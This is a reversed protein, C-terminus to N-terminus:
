QTILRNFIRLLIKIIKGNVTIELIRIILEILNKFIVSNIFFNDFNIELHPMRLNYYYENDHYGYKDLNFNHSDHTFELNQYDRNKRINNDILSSEESFLSNRLMRKNEEPIKDKKLLVNMIQNENSNDSDSYFKPINDYFNIKNFLQYYYFENDMLIDNINPLSYLKEKM